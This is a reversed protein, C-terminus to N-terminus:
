QHLGWQVACSKGRAIAKAFVRYKADLASDATVIDIGKNTLLEALTGGKGLSATESTRMMPKKDLWIPDIFPAAPVPRASIRTQNADGEVYNSFAWFSFFLSVTVTLYFLNRSPRTKIRVEESDLM